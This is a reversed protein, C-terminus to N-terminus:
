PIPPNNGGLKLKVGFRSLDYVGNIHKKFTMAAVIDYGCKLGIKVSANVYCQIHNTNFFELAQSSSLEVVECKRAFVRKTSTNLINSIKGILMM